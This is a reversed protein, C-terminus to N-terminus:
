FHGVGVETVKATWVGDSHLFVGHWDTIGWTHDFSTSFTRKALNCSFRGLLIEGDSSPRAPFSQVEDILWTTEFKGLRHKQALMQALAERAEEETLTKPWCAVIGATFMVTALAIFLSRKAM